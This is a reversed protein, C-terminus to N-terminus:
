NKKMKRSKYKTLWSAQKKKVRSEACGKIHLTTFLKVKLIYNM